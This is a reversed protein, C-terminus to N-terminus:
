AAIGWTEPWPFSAQSFTWELAVQEHFGGQGLSPASPSGAEAKRNIKNVVYSGGLEEDLIVDESPLM